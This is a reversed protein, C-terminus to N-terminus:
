QKACCARAREGRHQRRHTAGCGGRPSHRGKAPTRRHRQRGDAGTAESGLVDPMPGLSPGEHELTAVAKSVGDRHGHAGLAPVHHDLLGKPRGLHGLVSHGDSLRYLHLGQGHDVDPRLEHLRHRALRVINRAVAGGSCRDQGAGDEALTTLGHGSAHVGHVELAAHVLRHLDHELVQRRLRGHDVRRRADLADRGDRGIAILVDPVHDRLGKLLDALVARDGDCIAFGHLM